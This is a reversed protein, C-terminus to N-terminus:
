FAVNAQFYRPMFDLICDEDVLRYPTNRDQDRCFLRKGLIGKEDFMQLFSERNEEIWEDVQDPEWERSEEIDMEEEYQMVVQSLQMEGMSEALAEAEKRQIEVGFEGNRIKVLAKDEESNMKLDYFTKLTKLKDNFCKKSIHDFLEELFGESLEGNNKAKDNEIMEALLYPLQLTSMIVTDMDPTNVFYHSSYNFDRKWVGHNSRDTNNRSSPVVGYEPLDLKRTPLERSIKRAATIPDDRSTDIGCADGFVQIFLAAEAVADFDNRSELPIDLDVLNGTYYKMANLGEGEAYHHQGGIFQQERLDDIIRPGQRIMNRIGCLSLYKKQNNTMGNEVNAFYAPVEDGDSINYHIEGWSYRDSKFIEILEDLLEVVHDKDVSEFLERCSFAPDVLVRDKTEVCMKQVDGYNIQQQAVSQERFFEVGSVNRNAVSPATIPEERGEEAYAKLAQALMRPNINWIEIEGEDGGEIGFRDMFAGYSERENRFHDYFFNLLDGEHGKVQISIVGFKDGPEHAYRNIKRCDFAPDCGPVRRTGLWQASGGIKVEIESEEQHFVQNLAEQIQSEEWQLYYFLDFSLHRLPIKEERIHSFSFLHFGDKKFETAPGCPHVGVKNRDSPKSPTFWDDSLVLFAANGEHHELPIMKEPDASVNIEFCTESLAAFRPNDGLGVSGGGGGYSHERDNVCLGRLVNGESDLNIVGASTVRHQKIKQILDSPSMSIENEEGIEIGLKTGLTEMAKGMLEYSSTTQFFKRSTSRSKKGISFSVQDDYLNARIDFGLKKHNYKPNVLSLSFSEEVFEGTRIYHDEVAHAFIFDVIVRSYYRDAIRQLVSGQGGPILIEQDNIHLVGTELDVFFEDPVEPVREGMRSFRKWQLDSYGMLLPLLCRPSPKRVDKLDFKLQNAEVSVKAGKVLLGALDAVFEVSPELTGERVDDISSISEVMSDEIELRFKGQIREFINQINLDESTFQSLPIRQLRGQIYSFQTNQFAGFCRFLRQFLNLERIKWGTNHDHSLYVKKWGSFLSGSALQFQSIKHGSEVWQHFADTLTDM